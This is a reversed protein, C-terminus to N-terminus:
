ELETRARRLALEGSARQDPTSPAPQMHGIYMGLAPSSTSAVPIVHLLFLRIEPITSDIFECVARLAHQTAPTVPADIGLLIQKHM